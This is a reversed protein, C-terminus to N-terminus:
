DVLKEYAHPDPDAVFAEVEGPTPPLGLLDFRIRRILRRRDLPPSLSLGKRELASLLFADVPTRVSTTNKAKPLPQKTLPRFAWYDRSSAAAGTQAKASPQRDPQLAPQASVAFPLGFFGAALVAVLTRQIRM